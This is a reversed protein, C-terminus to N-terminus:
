SELDMEDDDGLRFDIGEQDLIRNIVRITSESVEVGNKRSEKEKEAEIEGPLYIRDVGEAKRCQRISDKYTEVLGLFKELPMFRDVDITMVAVGIGTPGELKHFTRVMPGYKSGSLLGSIIDIMMALGYGKPGGIPVLLGQLAENPDTTPNGNKDLAWGVPIKEGLRQARRVKGRAVVSMSMDLVIPEERAPIAISLPNTGFFPTVGGWPAMSPASNCAVIGIMGEKTALMSYFSLIGIHNTNRVLVFGTGYSRAKRVSIDVASKAGMQGLGNGGDIIAISNDDVVIEIKTPVTILGNRVREYINQLLYVGHTDIGRMDAMVLNESVLRAEEETGNLSRIVLEVAKKLKSPSVRM